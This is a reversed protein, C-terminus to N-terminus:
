GRGGQPATRPKTFEFIACGERRCGLMGGKAAEEPPVHRRLNGRDDVVDLRRLELRHNALQLITRPDFRRHCNFFVTEPGVPVSLYLTGGQELMRILSDLGREHGRPDIPDGYRGLGFHELAHLCSLSDCIGEPVSDSQMIDARMTRINSIPSDCPRIDVIEISRFSAVHAVFGDIRSGVDVHRRPRAEFIRQAVLLDQHFYAGRLTGADADHDLLQARIRLPIGLRESRSLTVFRALDRAFWPLAIARRIIRRM